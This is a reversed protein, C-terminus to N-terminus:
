YDVAEGSLYWDRPMQVFNGYMSYRALLLTPVQKSSLVSKRERLRYKRSVFDRTEHRSIGIKFIALEIRQYDFVQM